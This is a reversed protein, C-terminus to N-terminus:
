VTLYRVVYDVRQSIDRMAEGLTIYPIEFEALTSHLAEGYRRPDEMSRVGDDVLWEAVPEFLSQRYFPLVVQFTEDELLRRRREEAGAVTSTGAYVIPDVASRDSLIPLHPDTGDEDAFILKNARTEAELQALMISYQMDYTDTDNRSFGHTKMVTRAVEKIYQARPIHLRRALAECLTTKGSSSPGLVFVANYRGIVSGRRSIAASDASM